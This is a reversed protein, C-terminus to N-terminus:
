KDMGNGDVKWRGDWVNEIQGDVEEWKKRRM